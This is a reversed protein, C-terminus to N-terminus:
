LLNQYFKGWYLLAFVTTFKLTVGICGGAKQSRTKGDELICHAIGSGYLLGLYGTLLYQPWMITLLSFDPCVRVHNFNTLCREVNSRLTLSSAPPAMQFTSM